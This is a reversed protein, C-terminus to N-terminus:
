KVFVFNFISKSEPAFVVTINQNTVYCVFNFLNKYRFKRFTISIKNNVAKACSLADTSDKECVCM